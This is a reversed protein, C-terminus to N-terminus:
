KGISLFFQVLHYICYDVCAFFISFICVVFFVMAAASTVDARSPWSIKKVEQTLENYFKHAKLMKKNWCDHKGDGLIAPAVPISGAVGPKPSRHEVM